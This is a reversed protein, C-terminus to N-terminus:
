GAALEDALVYASAKGTSDIRLETDKRPVLAVRGSSTGVLALGKKGAYAVVGAVGVAGPRSSATVTATAGVVGLERVADAVSGLPRAAREWEEALCAAGEAGLGEAGGRRAVGTRRRQTASMAPPADSPRPAAPRRPPPAASALPVAKGRLKRDLEAHAAAAGLGGQQLLALLEEDLQGQQKQRQGGTPGGAASAPAGGRSAQFSALRRRKAESAM